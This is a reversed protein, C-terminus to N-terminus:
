KLKGRIEWVIRLNGLATEGRARKTIFLYLIPTLMGIVGEIEGESRFMVAGSMRVARTLSVSTASAVASEKLIPKIFSAMSAAVAASFASGLSFTGIGSWALM